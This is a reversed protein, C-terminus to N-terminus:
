KMAIWKDVCISQQMNIYLTVYSIRVMQTFTVHM